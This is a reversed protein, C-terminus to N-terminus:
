PTEEKMRYRDPGDIKILRKAKLRAIVTEIRAMGIGAERCLQRSPMDVVGGAALQQLAWYLAVQEQTLGRGRNIKAATERVAKLLKARSKPEAWRRRLNDSFLKRYEPRGHGRRNGTIMKERYEPNQWDRKRIDSMKKRFEPRRAQRRIGASRKKRIEPDAWTKRNWESLREREGPRSWRMRNLNAGCRRAKQVISMTARRKAATEENRWSLAIWCSRSCCQRKSKLGREYPKGCIKCKLTM